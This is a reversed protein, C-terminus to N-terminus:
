LLLLKVMDLIREILGSEFTVSLKEAPKEIVDILEETKLSRIKADGNRLVDALPPYSLVNSLFDARMTAVLVTSLSSQEAFARFTHLLTDLFQRRTSEDNCLTYLEEFQDAILLIRHNPHNQNIQEFVDSLPVTNELCYGALKRAQAIRDTEDLNATYLPVLAQALAHFPDKGPRFRTFKWHGERQLKPVLGAFIVSSKGSGSAGLIPIFQHTQTMNHLEEIFVDRGFFYEADESTFHFLGRYPCPLNDAEETLEVSVTTTEERYYNNYNYITVEGTPNFVAVAKGAQVVEVVAQIAEDSWNFYNSDGIHIERGRDISVNFKGLQQLTENDNNQLLQRLSELDSNNWNGSQIRQIIDTPNNSITM